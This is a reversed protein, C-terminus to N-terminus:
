PRQTFGPLLLFSFIKKPSVELKGTSPELKIKFFGSINGTIYLLTDSIQVLKSRYDFHAIAKEFPLFSLTRINRSTNVYIVSDSFTKIIIFFDPNAQYFEDSTQAYTVLEPALTCDKLEIPRFQKKSINYHYVGYSSVIALENNNLRLM